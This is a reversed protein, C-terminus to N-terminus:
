RYVDPRRFLTESPRFYQLLGAPQRAPRTITITESCQRSQPRHKQLAGAVIGCVGGSVGYGSYLGPRRFGNKWVM